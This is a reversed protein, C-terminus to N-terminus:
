IDKGIQQKEDVEILIASVLRLCSAGSYTEKEGGKV